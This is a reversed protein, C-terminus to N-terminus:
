KRSVPFFVPFETPKPGYAGAFVYDIQKIALSKASSSERNM